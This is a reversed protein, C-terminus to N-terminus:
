CRLRAQLFTELHRNHASRGPPGLGEVRGDKCRQELYGQERIAGHLLNVGIATRIPNITM